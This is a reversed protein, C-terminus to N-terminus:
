YGFCPMTVRYIYAAFQLDNEIGIFNTEMDLVLIEAATDRKFSDVSSLQTCIFGTEM